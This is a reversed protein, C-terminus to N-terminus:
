VDRALRRHQFADDAVICDCGFRRVAREAAAVRDAEQVHPVSPCLQELVLFEDNVAGDGAAASGAGHYGRSVIGPRRDWKQLLSVLWAVMPTKGTGGATLNGVSVVPVGVDRAALLGRDYAHNRLRVAVGYAAGAVTLAARAFPVLPGRRRGEIADLVWGAPKCRVRYCVDMGKGDQEM